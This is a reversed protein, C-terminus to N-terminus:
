NMKEGNNNFGGSLTYIADADIEIVTNDSTREFLYYSKANIIKNNIKSLSIQRGSVFIRWNSLDINQDTNNYLEFWEQTSADASTGAWAVENVVVEGSWNAFVPEAVTSWGSINGAVDSARAKFYYSQGRAGVFIQELSANGAQVVQPFHPASNVVLDFWEITNSSYQVDFNAVGSLADQSEIHISINTSSVGSFNATRVIPVAPAVTDIIVPTTSPVIQPPTSSTNAGSTSTAITSSTNQAALVSQDPIPFNRNESVSSGQVGGGYVVQPPKALVVPFINEIPLSNIIKLGLVSPKDADLNKNIIKNVPEPKTNKVIPIITANQKTSTSLVTIQVDSAPAIVVVAPENNGVVVKNSNLLGAVTNSVSSVITQATNKVATIASALGNHIDKCFSEGILGCAKVVTRKPFQEFAKLLSDNRDPVIQELLNPNQTYKEVEQFFLNIVSAGTLVAEPFLHDRYSPLVFISEGTSFLSEHGKILESALYISGKTLYIKSGESTLEIKRKLSKLEPKAFENNSITDESFFNENTYVAVDKIAQNVSQLKKFEKNIELLDEAIRLEGADTHMKSYVEYPSGPDGEIGPHSDDRVHDPVTADEILHLVHGLAIFASKKDGDIYSKIAKQWTQNGHQRGYAAQYNQNTVWDVSAISHLPAMDGGLNYGEVESLEGLHKGSWGVNHVPDYFHNIWRAPEDEEIAGQKLWAVENPLLYYNLNLNKANFFQTMEYTLSPHTSYQDYASAPFFLFLTLLLFMAGGKM